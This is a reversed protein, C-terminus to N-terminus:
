TKLPATSLHYCVDLGIVTLLEDTFRVIKSQQITKTKKKGGWSTIVKDKSVSKWGKGM